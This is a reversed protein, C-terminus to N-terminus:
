CCATNYSPLHFSSWLSSNSTHSGRQGGLNLSPPVKGTPIFFFRDLIGKPLWGILLLSHGVVEKIIYSLIVARPRNRLKHGFHYFRHLPELLPFAFSAAAEVGVEMLPFSPLPVDGIGRDASRSPPPWFGSGWPATPVGFATYTAESVMPSAGDLARARGMFKRAASKTALNSSTQSRALDHSKAAEPVESGRLTVSSSTTTASSPPHDEEKRGRKGTQRERSRM